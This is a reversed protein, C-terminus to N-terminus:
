LLCYVEGERAPSNVWIFYEGAVPHIGYEESRQLSALFTQRCSARHRNVPRAYPVKTVIGISMDWSFAALIGHNPM